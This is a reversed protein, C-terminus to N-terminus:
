VLWAPGCEMIRSYFGLEDLLTVLVDSCILTPLQFLEEMAEIFLRRRELGRLGEWLSWAAM